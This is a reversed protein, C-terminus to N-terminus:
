LNQMIDGKQYRRRVLNMVAVGDANVTSYLVFYSKCYYKLLSEEM